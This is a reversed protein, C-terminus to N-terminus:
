ARQPAAAGCTTPDSAMSGSRFPSGSGSAANGPTVGSGWTRGSSRIMRVPNAFRSAMRPGPPNGRDALTAMRPSPDLPRVVTASRSTASAWADPATTAHSSRARVKSGTSATARPTRRSHSTTMVGAASSSPRAMAPERSAPRDTSRSRRSRGPPRSAAVSRGAWMAFRSPRSAASARRASDRKTTRSGGPIPLGSTAATPAAVPRWRSSARREHIRSPRSM